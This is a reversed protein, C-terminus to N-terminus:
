VFKVKRYPKLMEIIDQPYAGNSNYTVAYSGITESSVNGQHAKYILYEIMHAAVLKLGDPYENEISSSHIVNGWSDISISSPKFDTHCYNEIHSTVIPLLTSIQEDHSSGSVQLIIKIENVSTLPM